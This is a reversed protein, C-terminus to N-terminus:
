KTSVKCCKTYIYWLEFTMFSLLFSHPMSHCTQDSQICHEQSEIKNTRIEFGWFNADIFLCTRLTAYYGQHPAHIYHQKLLVCMYM